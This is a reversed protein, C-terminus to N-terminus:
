TIVWGAGFSVGLTLSSFLQAYLGGKSPAKYYICSLITFLILWVVGNGAIFSWLLIGFFHLTLDFTEGLANIGLSYGIAILIFSVALIAM